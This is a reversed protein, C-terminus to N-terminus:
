LARKLQLSRRVDRRRLLEAATLMGLPPALLYLWLAAYEGAQVAAGFSRAPNLSLGSLPGAVVTLVLVMLGVVLGTTRRWGRRDSTFIISAMLVFSLAAEALFAVAVGATGPSTVIGDVGPARLYAGWVAGAVRMGLVSGCAQALLYCAADLRTIRRLRLMALTVAPNIQAGSRQGWDSYIIGVLWSGALLGMLGRRVVANGILRHLPSGQYELAVAGTALVFMFAALASAEIGSKTLTERWRVFKSALPGPMDDFSTVAAM